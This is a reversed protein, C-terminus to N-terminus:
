VGQATSSATAVDPPNSVILRVIILGGGCIITSGGILSVDGAFSAIALREIGVGSGGSSLAVGSMGLSEDRRDAPPDDDGPQCAPEDCYQREPRRCM